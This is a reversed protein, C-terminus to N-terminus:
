RGRQHQFFQRLSASYVFSLAIVGQLVAGPILSFGDISYPPLVAGIAGVAGLVIVVVIAWKLGRWCGYWLGCYLCVLLISLLEWPSDSFGFYVRAWVVHFLDAAVLTLFFVRGRFVLRADEAENGGHKSEQRPQGPTRDGSPAENEVDPVGVDVQSWEITTQSQKIQVLMERAEDMQESRVLVAVTGPASSKFDSTYEGVTMARIGREELAAAVLGAEAESSLSVLVSPDALHDATVRAGEQM